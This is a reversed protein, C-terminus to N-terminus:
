KKAGDRSKWSTRRSPAKPYMTEFTATVSEEAEAEVWAPSGDQCRALRMSYLTKEKDEIEVVDGTNVACVMYLDAKDATTRGAHLKVTKSVGRYKMKIKAM